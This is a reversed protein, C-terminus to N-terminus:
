TDLLTPGETDWSAWDEQPPSYPALPAVPGPSQGSGPVCGGGLQRKVELWGVVGGVGFDVTEM